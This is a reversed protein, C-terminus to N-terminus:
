DSGMVVGSSITAHNKDPPNIWVSTPLSVPQPRGSVFREPHKAYASDLVRQRGRQVLDAQGSHVSYPTMYAIGSHFHDYNYWRLFERCFVRADAISGFRKPFTHHYKLTKFQSESFANDNSVQPRSLSRVVGLDALLYAVSKSTMETGRDSHVTLSGPKVKHQRCTEAIFNNAIDQNSKEVLTWGVVFRSFIDIMVYLYFSQGKAPGKLHTIDWTWVQNPYEAVLEPKKYKPHRATDRREKVEDNRRLIRYMTSVSCLYRGEDLLM